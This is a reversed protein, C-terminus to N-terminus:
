EQAKKWRWEEALIGYIVTDWFRGKFFEKERLRGEQRMGLKELVRISNENAALAEAWIRHLQLTTFGFQLLAEAAETAYGNGWVKPDIEYGMDADYTKVGRKRLGVNGIVKNDAPLAIAFQFKTRPIEQQQAIFRQVFAKADQEARHEWEYFELYRLDNQYAYM